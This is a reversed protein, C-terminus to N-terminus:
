FVSKNFPLTDENHIRKILPIRDYGDDFSLIWPTKLKDMIVLSIADTLGIPPQRTRHNRYPELKNNIALQVMSSTAQQVKCNNILENYANTAAEFGVHSQMCQFTEVLVYESIIINKLGNIVNTSLLKKWIKVADRHHEDTKDSLGVLFCADGFLAVM